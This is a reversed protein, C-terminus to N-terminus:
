IGLVCFIVSEGNKGGWVGVFVCIWKMMVMFVDCWNM